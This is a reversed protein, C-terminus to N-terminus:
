VFGKEQGWKVWAKAMRKVRGRDEVPVPDVNTIAKLAWFWQKPERSLEQLIFPVADMGMGIIRQYAPHMAIKEVSSFYKTERTWQIKNTKFKVYPHSLSRSIPLVFHNIFVQEKELIDRAESGFGTQEFYLPYNPRHGPVIQKLYTM